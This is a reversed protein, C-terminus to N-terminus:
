QRQNTLIKQIILSLISGGFNIEQFQMMRLLFVESEMNQGGNGILVKGDFVRPAGTITYSWDSGFEETTNVEWNIKGNSADLSILRGDLVGVYVNGQIYSSGQECCRM